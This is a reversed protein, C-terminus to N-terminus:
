VTVLSRANAGIMEKEERDKIMIMYNGYHAVDARTDFDTIFRQIGEKTRLVKGIFNQAQSVSHYIKRGNIELGEEPAYRSTKFTTGDRTSFSEPKANKPKKPPAIHWVIAPRVTASNMRKARTVREAFSIPIEPSLGLPEVNVFKFGRAVPVQIKSSTKMTLAVLRVMEQESKETNELADKLQKATVAPSITGDDEKKTYTNAM